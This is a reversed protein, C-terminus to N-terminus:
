CASILSLYHHTKQEVTHNIVTQLNDPETVSTQYCIVRKTKGKFQTRAIVEYGVFCGKKFCIAQHKDLGLMHPTYKESHAPTINVISQQILFLTWNGTENLPNESFLFTKSAYITGNSLHFQLERFPDYYRLTKLLLAAQSQDIYIHTQDHTTSVWFTTIVKGSANCIASLLPTTCSKINQTMIRQLIAASQEGQLTIKKLTTKMNIAM